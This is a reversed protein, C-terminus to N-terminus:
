AAWALYDRNHAILSDTLKEALDHQGVLPHALLARYVRQRGGKLAADIALEEYASVAGILGAMEPAVTGVTSSATLTNRTCRSAPMQSRRRLASNSRACGACRRSSGWHVAALNSFFKDVSNFFRHFSDGLAAAPVM